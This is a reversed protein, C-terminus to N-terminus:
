ILPIPCYKDKKSPSVEGLMIDELEMGTPLVNCLKRGTEPGM